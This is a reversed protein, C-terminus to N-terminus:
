ADKKGGNKGHRGRKGAAFEEKTVAGDNNKDLTKFWADSKAQAEAATVQGDNNADAKQFRGRGKMEDKSIVGNKNADVREFRRKAATRAEDLTVKGDGNADMKKMGGRGGGHALAVAGFGTVACFGLVMSLKKVLLEKKEAGTKEPKTLNL